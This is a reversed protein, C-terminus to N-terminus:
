FKLSIKKNPDAHLLKNLAYIKDKETIKSDDHILNHM